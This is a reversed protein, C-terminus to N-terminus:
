NTALPEAEIVRGARDLQVLYYTPLLPAFASSFGLERACGERPLYDVYSVCDGEWDAGGLVNEVGKRDMGLHIRPFREALRRDHWWGWGAWALGALVAAILLGELLRRLTWTRRM